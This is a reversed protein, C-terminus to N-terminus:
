KVIRHCRILRHLSMGMDGIALAMFIAILAVAYEFADM